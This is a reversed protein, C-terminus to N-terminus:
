AEAKGVLYVHRNKVRNNRVDDLVEKLKHLATTQPVDGIWTARLSFGDAETALVELAAAIGPLVQPQLSWTPKNWDANDAMLSCSCGGDRSFHLAGKVPRNAKVVHLGSLEALRQPSVKNPTAPVAFLELCM